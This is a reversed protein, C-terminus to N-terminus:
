LVNVSDIPDARLCRPSEPSAKNHVWGNTGPYRHYNNPPQVM